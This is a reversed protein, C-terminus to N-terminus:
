CQRLPDILGRQPGQGAVGIAIDIDLRNIDVDVVVHLMLLVVVRYWVLLDALGQFQVGPRSFFRACSM